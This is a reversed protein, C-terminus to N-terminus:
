LLHTLRMPRLIRRAHFFCASQPLSYAPLASLNSISRRRPLSRLGRLIYRGNANAATASNCVSSSHLPSAHVTTAAYTAPAAATHATAATGDAAYQAYLALRAAPAAASDALAGSGSTRGM